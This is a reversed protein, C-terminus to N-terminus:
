NERPRIEARDALLARIQGKLSSFMDGKLLVNGHYPNAKVGHNLDEPIPRREYDLIGAYRRKVRDLEMRPIIAIGIKFQLEGNQKKQNLTIEIAHEDDMWNISEEIWGDCRCRNKPFSFLNTNAVYSDELIHFCDKNPIGKICENPYPM